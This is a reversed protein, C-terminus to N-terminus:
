IKWEGIKGDVLERAEGLVEIGGDARDPKREATGFARDGRRPHAGPDAAIRQANAIRSTRGVIIWIPPRDAAHELLALAIKQNPDGRDRRVERWGLGVERHDHEARRPELEGLLGSHEDGDARRPEIMCPPEDADVADYRQRDLIEPARRKRGDGLDESRDFGSELDPTECGMSM